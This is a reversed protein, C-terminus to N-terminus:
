NKIKNEKIRFQTLTVGTHKKFYASFYLPESFGLHYAIEKINKNSHILMRKAELIIRNDIMEKATTGTINKTTVSLHKPTIHLEDAYLKVKHWKKYNNDVMNKFDRYLCIGSQDMELQQVDITCSNNCYILFLQLLSGLAKDKYKLDDPFCDFMEYVVNILKDFSKVDLELPTFVGFIKFLNLNSIFNESIFNRELFDRSFTIVWGKPENYLLVQHIQGPAIFHVESGKFAYAELDVYHIGEAYQIILVTYYDHRHPMDTTGELRNYLDEM